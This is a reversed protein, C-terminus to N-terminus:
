PEVGFQWFLFGLQVAMRRAARSVTSGGSHGAPADYYLLIPSESGVLEQMLATMKRAHLPAVRTDSDGSVFMVAPYRTGETVNHYPSYKYIFEFQQPDDASGYESIWYPGMLFKHYRLMDLLPYSCLVAKFLDPRQNMAAGVLLGGNSGGSIALKDECTYKHDILWEAAAVFDDFTNQKNELMGDRHWTEGMEGGGRLNPIAVVGGTEVWYAFTHAFHPTWSWNFGGYGTLYAHNNGDLTLGKRHVLFMPVTTSDKSTYWVQKIEINDCDVPVNCRYWVKSKGTSVDLRYVTSPIHFSSFTYFAEQGDWNGSVGDTSGLAPLDLEGVCEGDATYIKTHYNVNELYSVYLHGGVLSHGQIVADKSEPVVLRWNEMAPNALDAAYICWNPAQHNTMIYMEDEAISGYFSAEIGTAVPTVPGGNAVDAFYVESQGAGYYVLLNLYTRDESLWAVVIEEPGYQNGFLLSDSAFDTGFEHYYAGKALSDETSYYFGSKDANISLGFYVSRPLSDALEKGSDVDLFRVTTEDEGGQRVYYAMLKGDLSVDFYGVNLTHDEALVHPDVLLRDEGDLGERVYISSLEEDAKRKMLFYRGQRELPESVEDIRMLEGIRAEMQGLDPFQQIFADTYESQAELWARTEPSQQDELWRYPDEIVVGHLTDVVVQKKTPPPAPITSEASVPHGSALSLVVIAALSNKFYFM